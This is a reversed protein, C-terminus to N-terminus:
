RRRESSSCRNAASAIPEPRRSHSPRDTPAGPVSPDRPDGDPDPGLGAMWSHAALVVARQDDPEAGMGDIALRRRCGQSRDGRRETHPLSPARSAM